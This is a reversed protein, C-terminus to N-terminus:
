WLNLVPLVQIARISFLRAVDVPEHFFGDVFVTVMSANSGQASLLGRIMRSHSHLQHFPFPFASHSHIPYRFLYLPRNSAIIIVPVDAVENPSFQVDRCIFM